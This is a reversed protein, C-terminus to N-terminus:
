FLGHAPVLSWPGTGMILFFLAVAALVFNKEASTVHGVVGLASLEGMAQRDASSAQDSLRARKALDALRYHIVAGGLSFVLLGAAGLQGYCGLLISLAGLAMVVISAVAFCGSQWPFLLGTAQVTAPWDKLLSKLPYLFMWAYVFRLVLWAVDNYDIGSM